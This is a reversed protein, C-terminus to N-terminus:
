RPHRDSKRRCRLRCDAGRQSSVVCDITLGPIVGKIAILPVVCQLSVGTVISELPPAPFSLNDPSAPSSVSSPPVARVSQIAACPVIGIQKGTARALVCYDIYSVVAPLTSVTSSPSPTREASIFSSRMPFSRLSVM